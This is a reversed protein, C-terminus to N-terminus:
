ASEPHAARWDAWERREDETPERAPEDGPKRRLGYGGQGNTRNPAYTPTEKKPTTAALHASEACRIVFNVINQKGEAKATEWGAQWAPLGLRTIAEIHADQHSKSIMLNSAAYATSIAKRAPAQADEDESSPVPSPSPSPASNQWVKALPKSSNQKADTQCNALSKSSKAAKAYGGLSGAVKRAARTAEIQESTPNWELYDHIRYGGEVTEWLGVDLLQKAFDQCNAIDATSAIFKVAREPIFGDSRQNAVYVLGAVYLLKASGDVQAVKKNYFFQDDLKAWSM